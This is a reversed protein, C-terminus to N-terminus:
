INLSSVAEFTEISLNKSYKLSSASFISEGTAKLIATIGETDVTQYTSNYDEYLLNVCDESGAPLGMGDMGKTFAVFAIRIGQVERILYGGSKRFDETSAYTGLPEM